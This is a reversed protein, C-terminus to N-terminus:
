SKLAVNANERDQFLGLLMNFNTVPSINIIVPVFGNFKADLVAPDQVPINLNETNGGVKLDLLDRNLDIGGPIKGLMSSDGPKEGPGPIKRTAILAVKSEVTGSFKTVQIM